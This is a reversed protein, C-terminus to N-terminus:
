PWRRENDLLEQMERSLREGEAFFEMNRVNVYPFSVWIRGGGLPPTMVFCDTTGRTRYDRWVVVGVSDKTIFDGNFGNPKVRFRPAEERTFWPAKEGTSSRM